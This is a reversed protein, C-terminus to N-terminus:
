LTTTQYRLRDTMCYMCTSSIKSKLFARSCKQVIVSLQPRRVRREARTKSCPTRVLFGPSARRLKRPYVNSTERLVHWTSPVLLRPILRVHQRNPIEWKAMRWLPDLAEKYTSKMQFVHNARNTCITKNVCQGDKNESASPVCALGLSQPLM